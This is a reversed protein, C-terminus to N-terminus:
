GFIPFPIIDGVDLGLKRGGLVWNICSSVDSELPGFARNVFHGSPHCAQGLL